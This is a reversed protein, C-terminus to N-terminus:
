LDLAEFPNAGSGQFTLTQIWLRYDEEGYLINYNNTM